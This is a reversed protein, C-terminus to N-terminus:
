IQFGEFEYPYTDAPDYKDESYHLLQSYEIPTILHACKPSITVKDGPNLVKILREKTEIHEFVLKVAGSIVYFSEKRKLHYHKGRFFGKKIDIFVLHRFWEGNEIQALEGREEIIRREDQYDPSSTLTKFYLLKKLASDSGM